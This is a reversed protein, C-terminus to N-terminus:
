LYDRLSSNQLVLSNWMFFRHDKAGTRHAKMLNAEAGADFSSLRNPKVEIDELWRRMPIGFGKKPRDLIHQPVMRALATKLVKKTTTGDFKYHAPLHRAFDVLDNDLFISRAELGNMMAARDVKTLINDPLYINTFFEQTKDIYNKDDAEDWLAIAEAYIEGVDCPEHFLDRIDNLSLPAMWVPNWVEAGYDLGMLVRRLKFDLSMNKQSKPLLDVLSKAIKHGFGPMFSEYLGAPKLARFPDYGAFIEDGADGSLAVTVKESAFQCLLYTPLLSGDGMPEDLQNLVDELLRPATSLDLIREHHDTNLFEAMSRAYQSEDFSKEQFGISFSKVDRPSILKCMAASVASSDVGGSLFVGLPVDSMMRRKVSQVLLAEIEEAAEEFSPPQTLTEIRYRWYCQEKIEGDEIDFLLWHGSRLKYCDQLISMPSPIYGYAFFKKIAQKNASNNFTSHKTIATLESGFLFTGNQLAWYLPKEGFRDRALFVQNTRRDWICFAFMGNLKLPLDTGWEEWGHVLIETDSHDTAFIHGKEQLEYRIKKHNYIEGNFVVWIKGDENCMPQKGSEVDIIALRQHGLYVPEESDIFQGSGDPGRHQIATMMANLDDQDGRGIFGAIGCM